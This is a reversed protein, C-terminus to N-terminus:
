ITGRAQSWSSRLLHWVVDLESSDRPGYIMMTTPPILGMRAVPHAEGWGRDTVQLVLRAPIVMHLSGDYPPHIHAFERQILFAEVAPLPSTDDLVFGRSGPLSILSPCVFTGPLAAVREVLEEQIEAPAIQTLQRHPDDPTTRPKPGIRRPLWERRPDDPEM